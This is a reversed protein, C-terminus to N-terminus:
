LTQHYTTLNGDQSFSTDIASRSVIELKQMTDAIAPFTLKADAPITASIDLHFQEGIRIANTDTKAFAHVQSQAIAGMCSCSITLMFFLFSLIHRSRRM